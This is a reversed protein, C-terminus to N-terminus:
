LDGLLMGTILDILRRPPPTTCSPSLLPVHFASSAFGSPFLTSPFGLRLHFLVTLISRLSINHPRPSSKDQEPCCLHPPPHQWFSLLFEFEVFNM